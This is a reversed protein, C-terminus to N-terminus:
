SLMMMRHFDACATIAKFFGGIFLGHAVFFFSAM